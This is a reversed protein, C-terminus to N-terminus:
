VLSKKEEEGEGEGEEEVAERTRSIGCGPPIEQVAQLVCITRIPIFPLRTGRRPQRGSCHTAGNPCPLPLPLCRCQAAPSEMPWLCAHLPDCQGGRRRIGPVSGGTRGPQEVLGGRVTPGGAKGCAICSSMPSVIWATEPEGWEKRCDIYILDSAGVVGKKGRGRGERGGERGGGEGGEM